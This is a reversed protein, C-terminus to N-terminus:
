RTIRQREGPIVTDLSRRRQRATKKSRPTSRKSVCRCLQKILWGILIWISSAGYKFESHNSGSASLKSALCWLVTPFLPNQSCIQFLLHYHTIHCFFFPIEFPQLYSHSFASEALVTLTEIADGPNSAFPCSALRGNRPAHRSWQRM